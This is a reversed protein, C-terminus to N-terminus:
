SRDEFFYYDAGFDYWVGITNFEGIFRSHIPKNCEASEIEFWVMGCCYQDFFDSLYEKEVSVDYGNLIGAFLRM